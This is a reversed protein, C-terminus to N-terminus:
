AGSHHLFVHHLSLFSLFISCYMRQPSFHFQLPSQVCRHHPGLQHSCGISGGLARTFSGLATDPVSTRNGDLDVNINMAWTLVSPWISTRARPQGRFSHQHRHAVSSGLAMSIQTAQAAVSPWLFTWTWAAASPWTKTRPGVAVLAWTRHDTGDGSIM